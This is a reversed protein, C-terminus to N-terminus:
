KRKEEEEEKAAMHLLGAFILGLCGGIIVGAFFLLM